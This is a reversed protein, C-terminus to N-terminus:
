NSPLSEIFVNERCCIYQVIFSKNSAHRHTQRNIERDNGPLLEIFVKAPCRLITSPTTKYAIRVTDFSLIQNPRGLIEGQDKNGEEERKEMM